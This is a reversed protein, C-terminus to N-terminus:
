QRQFKAIAYYLTPLIYFLLIALQIKPWYGKRFTRFTFFNYDVQFSFWPWKM